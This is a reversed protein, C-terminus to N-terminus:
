MLGLKIQLDAESYVILPNKQLKSILSIIAKDINM